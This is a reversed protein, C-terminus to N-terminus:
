KSPAAAPAPAPAPAPKKGPTKAAVWVKGDVKMDGKVHLKFSKDFGSGGIGVNGSKFITDGRSFITAGSGGFKMENTFDFTLKGGSSTPNKIGFIMNLSSGEPKAQIYAHTGPQSTSGFSM